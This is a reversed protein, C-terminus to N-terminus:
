PVPTMQSSRCIVITITKYYLGCSAQKFSVLGSAQVIFVNCIYTFRLLSANKNIFALTSTWALLRLSVEFNTVKRYIVSEYHKIACAGLRNGGDPAMVKPIVASLMIVSLMWVNQISVNLIVIFLTVSLKQVTACDSSRLM